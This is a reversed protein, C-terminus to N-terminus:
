EEAGAEAEGGIRRRLEIRERSSVGLLNKVRRETCGASLHDVFGPFNLQM